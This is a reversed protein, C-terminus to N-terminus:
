RWGQLAPLEENMQEESTFRRTEFITVDNSDIVVRQAEVEDDGVMVKDGVHPCACLRIKKSRMWAGVGVYCIVTIM